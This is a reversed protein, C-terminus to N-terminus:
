KVHVTVDAPLWPRLALDGPETVRLQYTEVQARAHAAPRLRVLHPGLIAPRPYVYRSRHQLLLRM